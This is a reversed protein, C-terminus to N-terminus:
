QGDERVLHDLEDEAFAGRVEPLGEDMFPAATDREWFGLDDFGDGSSWEPEEQVSELYEKGWSAHDAGPFPDSFDTDVPIQLSGGPGVNLQLRAYTQGCKAVIVMVAWDARGFCREFTEEDVGSPRASQGPHTHVWIRGFQEPRRGEDVQEDFFDAVADDDFHVSVASCQQRVLRIDEVLLLDDVNAIGFGGVETDGYDRLYL